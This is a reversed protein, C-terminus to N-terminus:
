RKSPAPSKEPAHPPPTVQRPPEAISGMVAPSAVDGMEFTPEGQVAIAGMTASHCTGRFFATASAAAIAGAGAIALVVKKRRKKTAGVSCDQTMVTGDARRYFRVCVDGGLREALFAEADERTMSSINYVSKQCSLCHRAREAGVMEDWNAKCPSAVRIDDLMPLRRSPKAYLREDIARLEHAITAQRARMADLHATQTHLQSLEQELSSKRQRLADLENRYPTTVTRISRTLWGFSRDLGFHELNRAIDPTPLRPHPHGDDTM